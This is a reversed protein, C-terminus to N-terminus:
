VIGKLVINGILFAHVRELYIRFPPRMVDKTYPKCTLFLDIIKYVSRPTIWFNVKARSRKKEREKANINM